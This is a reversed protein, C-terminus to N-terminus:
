LTAVFAELDAPGEINSIALDRNVRRVLGSLVKGAGIEVAQDIGMDAFSAVSERWRVRGTVQEVLLHRLAEPDEAPQATVNAIVPVVPRAMAAAELATKMTDAAPAMLSCHFPASVPLLLGRRAGKDKALTIAREVADKDGSVVAQGPANDNALDCVEGVARAEKAIDEVQACDLGLIAAMAGEGVPVARQMAEGRLKLLRATDSVSLAGAACLATYEGLSHGAVHSALDAVSKGDSELIRIIAMSAAMLAPQANETLRLDEEPGEFMLRSLNQSLADDVEQFLEKAPTFAEALEKGMGAHQSGQGPFLLIRTM